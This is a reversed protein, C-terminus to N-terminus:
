NGGKFDGAVVVSVRAPDIWREFAAAVERPTLAAIRREIGADRAFTRGTELYDALRSAIFSDQSRTLQLAQLLSKRGAAVEEGTFGASVARRLEEAILAEVRARNEPAFIAFMGFEGSEDRSGARLSSGVSYSLGETERVRRMLRSDSAGGFLYNALVLAPYDPHDDRLRLNLGARYVANAKDPTLIAQRLPPSDQFREPIRRYPAPSRWDDFLERALGLVEDADFDGVISLSGDTAGYFDDHCARVERASAARIRDIREDLTASYFWHDSPYPHLHRDLALASVARPDSRQSELGALTSERLQALESPPFSPRRLMEAVLRLLEPLNERVTQLSGGEGGVGVTAKLRAVSVALQERTREQTGRQLMASALSCATSRGRKGQEDGWQLRLQAVVTGGRTKRPLLALKMGGPLQVRRTRAEINEPTPDFTEGQAMGAAGRYDKFMAAIDPVAPIEARDPSRTPIFLGATRNAPKFYHEAVRQIDATTAAKVRDRHLFVARWDGMAASESMVLALQRSSAIIRELGNLVRMRAREVEEDTVPRARFGEIAELLADRAAELSNGQRVNAGFYAYGPEYAQDDMGFISSAKGTEVLVKHLRGTPTGDLVRVLIDLPAYDPHSGPPLRYMASAMQVDGARRLVVSREGDQIPEVTYTRPLTRAPRPIPGFHRQLLRLAAGPEFRGAVVLVANDPQYYTQYFRQLREIPVNEIDSREGIIARGYNHWHFATAAVRKRLVNAVSNEGSEFENRVVTMEADLDQRAVRSNVMRDAEMALAWDLNDDGAALTEFYNTRDQSTTGNYRAGRKVLQAKLDPFRGTGRFLLHELLHAMGSEGYGEHRSGVLYTINVTVTDVSADPILLAKLGNPFRYESVGEVSPGASVGDPLAPQGPPDAAGAPPLSLIAASLAFLAWALLRRLEGPATKRPIM